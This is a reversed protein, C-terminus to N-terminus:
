YDEHFQITPDDSDVTENREVTIMLIMMIIIIAYVANKFLKMPADRNGDPKCDFKATEDKHAVFGPRCREECTDGFESVGKRVTNDGNNAIEHFVQTRLPCQSNAHFKVHFKM